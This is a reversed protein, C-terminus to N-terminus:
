INLAICNPVAVVHLFVARAVLAESFRLSHCVAFSVLLFFCPFFPLFPVRLISPCIEESLSPDLSGVKPELRGSEM